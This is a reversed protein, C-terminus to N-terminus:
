TMGAHREESPRSQVIRGRAAHAAEPLLGATPSSCAIAISVAVEALPAADHLRPAQKAIVGADSGDDGAPRRLRDPDVPRRPNPISM